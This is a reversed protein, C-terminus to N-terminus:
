SKDTVADSVDGAIEVAGDVAGKGVNAATKGAASAADAVASAADATAGAASKAAGGVADGVDSAVKKTADWLDAM